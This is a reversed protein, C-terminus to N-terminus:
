DSVIYTHLQCTPLHASVVRLPLSSSSCGNGLPMAATSGVKAGEWKSRTMLVRAEAELTSRRCRAM